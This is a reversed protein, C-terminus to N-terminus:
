VEPMKTAEDYIRASISKLYNGWKELYKVEERWHDKSLRHGLLQMNRESVDETLKPTDALDLMDSTLFSKVATPPYGLLLGIEEHNRSVDDFLTKLKEASTKDKAIFFRMVEVYGGNMTTMVETTKVYALNLKSFISDLQKLSSESIHIPSSKDPFTEGEIVVLATPKLNAHVLLISAKDHAIIGSLSELEKVVNM